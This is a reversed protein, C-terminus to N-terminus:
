AAEPPAEVSPLRLLSAPSASMLARSVRDPMLGSAAGPGRMIVLEHEGRYIAALLESAPDGITVELAVDTGRVRAKRRQEGLWKEAERRVEDDLNHQSVEQARPRPVFLRDVVHILETRAGWAQQAARAAEIVETGSPVAGVAALVSRPVGKGLTRSFWVPVGARAMLAFATRGRLGWASRRAGREGIFVVEASHERAAEELQSAPDGSRVDLTCDSGLEDRLAHLRVAASEVNNQLSADPDILADRIYSPPVLPRVVHVLTLEEPRLQSAVWAAADLSAAGFDVGVVVRQFV